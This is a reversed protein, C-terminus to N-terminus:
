KQQDTMDQLAELLPGRTKWLEQFAAVLDGPPPPTRTDAANCGLKQSPPRGRQPSEEGQHKAVASEGTGGAELKRLWGPVPQQDVLLARQTDEQAAAAHRDPWARGAPEM